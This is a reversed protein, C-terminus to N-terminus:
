KRVPKLPILKKFVPEQVPKKALTPKTSSTTQRTSTPKSSSPLERTTTPKTPYTLEPASSPKTSYTQEPVSSPKTPYTLEPVSTPKTSYTLQPLTTPKPLELVEDTTRPAAPKIGTIKEHIVRGISYSKNILSTIAQHMLNHTIEQTADYLDKKTQELAANIASQAETHLSTLGRRQYPYRNENPNYRTIATTEENYRSDRRKTEVRSHTNSFLLVLLVQIFFKKM